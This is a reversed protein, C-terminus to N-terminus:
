KKAKTSPKSTKSSKAQGFHHVKPQDTRPANSIGKPQSSSVWSKGKNSVGGLGQPDAPRHEGSVQSMAHGVENINSPILALANVSGLLAVLQSQQAEAGCRMALKALLDAADQRTYDDMERSLAAGLTRLAAEISVEPEDVVSFKFDLNPDAPPDGIQADGFRAEFIRAALADDYLADIPIGFHDAIRKASGRSPIEVRGAAIKHLTGQFSEARMAKAVPLSGGADKVLRAILQHWKV